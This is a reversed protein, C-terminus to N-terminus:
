RYLHVSNLANDGWMYLNSYQSAELTESKKEKEKKRKQTFPWDFSGNGWYYFFNYHIPSSLHICLRM